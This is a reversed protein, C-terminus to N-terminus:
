NDICDLRINRACSLILQHNYAYRTSDYPLLPSGYPNVPYGSVYAYVIRTRSPLNDGSKKTYAVLPIRYSSIETVSYDSQALGLGVIHRLPCLAWFFIKKVRFRLRTEYTCNEDSEQTM